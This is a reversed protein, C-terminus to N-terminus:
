EDILHKKRLADNTKTYKRIGAIPVGGDRGVVFNNAGLFWTLLTASISSYPPISRINLNCPVELFMTKMLGGESTRWTYIMQSNPVGATGNTGVVGLSYEYIWVPNSAPTPQSWFSALGFTTESHFHPKIAAVFADMCETFGQNGGQNLAIDPETGPTVAGEPIVPLTMIHERGSWTYVLKIFAPSLSNVAM